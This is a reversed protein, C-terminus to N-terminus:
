SNYIRRRNQFFTRRDDEFRGSFNNIQSRGQSTGLIDIKFRDYLKM